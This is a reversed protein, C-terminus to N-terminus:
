CSSLLSVEPTAYEVFAYGRPRGRKPGSKHFLYDFKAIKGHKGLFKILSYEDASESLGGVFLRKNLASASASSSSSSAMLTLVAHQSAATTATNSQFLTAM